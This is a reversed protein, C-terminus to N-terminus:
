KLVGLKSEEVSIQSSAIHIQRSSDAQKLIELAAVIYIVTQWVHKPFGSISLECSWDIKMLFHALIFNNIYKHSNPKSGTHNLLKNAALNIFCRLVFDKHLNM